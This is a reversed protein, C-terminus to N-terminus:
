TVALSHRCIKQPLGHSKGETTNRLRPQRPQEEVIAGLESLKYKAWM